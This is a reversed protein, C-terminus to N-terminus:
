EFAIAHGRRAFALVAVNKMSVVRITATMAIAAAPATRGM